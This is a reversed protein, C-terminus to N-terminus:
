ASLSIHILVPRRAPRWCSVGTSPLSLDPADLNLALGPLFNTVLAQAHRCVDTM